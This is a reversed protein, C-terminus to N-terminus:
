GEEQMARKGRANASFVRSRRIRRMNAPAVAQMGWRAEHMADFEIALRSFSPVSALPGSARYSSVNPFGGLNWADM